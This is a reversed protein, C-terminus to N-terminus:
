PVRARRRCDLGCLRHMAAADVLPAPKEKQLREWYGVPEKNPPYVPYTRLNDAPATYYEAATYHGPRVGLAAVPTAWDALAGDDWIRPVQPQSRAVLTAVSLLVVVTLIRGVVANM